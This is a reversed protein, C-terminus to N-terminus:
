RYASPWVESTIQDIAKHILGADLWKKVLLWDDVRNAEGWNGAELARRRHMLMPTGISGERPPGGIVIDGMPSHSLMMSYAWDVDPDEFVRALAECHKPYLRDDDDNYTILDGAALETGWRRQPAAYQVGGFVGMHADTEYYRIKPMMRPQVLNGFHEKLFPDPGDSIIIHEVNPYTQAQVSPVCRNLLWDHRDWTPTIVSVLPKM